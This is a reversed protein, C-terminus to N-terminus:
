FQSLTINEDNNGFNLFDAYKLEEFDAIQSLMVNEEECSLNLSDM